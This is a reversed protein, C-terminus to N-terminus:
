EPQYATVRRPKGQEQPGVVGCEELEDMLRAAKPFGIGLRTQLATISLSRRTQALAIAQELLSDDNEGARPAARRGNRSAPADAEPPEEEIELQPLHASSQGRWNEIVREIEFDNVFIGQLRKPKLQDSPLFLMDGRGLLKEGGGRDLITRSDAISTVTFSIRSAFNSKITGTIVDVSPRQTAVLLHIGTARGLQALRALM